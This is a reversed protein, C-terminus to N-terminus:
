VDKRLQMPGFKEGRVHLWAAKGNSKVVVGLGLWLAAVPLCYQMTIFLRYKMLFFSVTGGDCFGWAENKM